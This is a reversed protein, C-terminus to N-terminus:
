SRVGCCGGAAGGDGRGVELTNGQLCLEQLGPLRCVGAPLWELVNHEAKLTRLQGLQALGDPLEALQNYSVDLLALRSCGSM